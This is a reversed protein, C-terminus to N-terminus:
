SRSGKGLLSLNRITETELSTFDKSCRQTKWVKDWDVESLDAYESNQANLNHLPLRNLKDLIATATWPKMPGCTMGISFTDDRPDMGPNRGDFGTNRLEKNAKADDFLIAGGEGHALVKGPGFSLCQYSGPRYMDFTLRRASDWIPYPVLQFEGAWVTHTCKVTGGARYIANVVGNYTRAPITM